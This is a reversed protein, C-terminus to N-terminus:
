PLEPAAVDHGAMTLAVLERFFQDEAVGNYPRGQMISFPHYGGIAAEAVATIVDAEAPENKVPVRLAAWVAERLEPVREAEPSPWSAMAISRDPRPWRRSSREVSASRRSAIV